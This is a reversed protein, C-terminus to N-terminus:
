THLISRQPLEPEFPLSAAAMEPYLADATQPMHRASREPSTRPRIQGVNAIEVIPVCGMEPIVLVVKM